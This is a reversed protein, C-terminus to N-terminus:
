SGAACFAPSASMLAQGRLMFNVDLLACSRVDARRSSKTALASPIVHAVATSVLFVCDQAGRRSSVEEVKDGTMSSSPNASHPNGFMQSRLEDFVQDIQSQCYVSSGTYDMYHENPKMRCGVQVCCSVGCRLMTVHAVGTVLTCM